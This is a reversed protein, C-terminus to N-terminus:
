YPAFKLRDVKKTVMSATNGQSVPSLSNHPSGMMTPPSGGPAKLKAHHFMKRNMDLLGMNLGLLPLPNIMQQTHHLSPITTLPQHPLQPIGGQPLQAMPAISNMAPTTMQPVSTPITSLSAAQEFTLSMKHLEMSGCM